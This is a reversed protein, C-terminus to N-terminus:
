IGREERREKRKKNREERERERERHRSAILAPTIPLINIRTTTPSLFFLPTIVHM